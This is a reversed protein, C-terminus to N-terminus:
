WAPAKLKFLKESAQIVRIHDNALMSAALFSGVEWYSQLKELSGKKGLLSSIKVGTTPLIIPWLFM